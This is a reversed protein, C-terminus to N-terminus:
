AFPASTPVSVVLGNLTAHFPTVAPVYWTVATAVSSSPAVPVDASISTVTAALWGGVTLRVAGALSVLTLADAVTVILAL